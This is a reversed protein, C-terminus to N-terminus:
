NPGPHDSSSRKKRAQRVAITRKMGLKREVADIFDYAEDPLTNHKAVRKLATPFSIWIISNNLPNIKTSDIRLIKSADFHTGELTKSAYEWQNSFALYAILPMHKSKELPKFDLSQNSWLRVQNNVRHSHNCFYDFRKDTKDDRLINLLSETDTTCEINFSSACDLLDSYPAEELRKNYMNDNIQGLIPRRLDEPLAIIREVLTTRKNELISRIIRTNILDEKKDDPVYSLIKILFDDSFNPGFCVNILYKHDLTPNNTLDVYGNDIFSLISEEDKAAIMDKFMKSLVMEEYDAHFQEKYADFNQAGKSGELFTISLRRPKPPTSVSEVDESETDLMEDEIFPTFLSSNEANMQARIDRLRQRIDMNKDTM